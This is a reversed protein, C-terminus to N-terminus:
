IVFTRQGGVVVVVAVRVAQQQWAVEPSLNCLKHSPQINNLTALTSPCTQTVRKRRKVLQYV